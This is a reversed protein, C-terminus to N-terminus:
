RGNERVWEGHSPAMDGTCRKEKTYRTFDRCQKPRAKDACLAFHECEDCPPDPAQTYIGLTYPRRPSEIMGTKEM